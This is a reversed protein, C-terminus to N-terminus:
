EDPRKERNILTRKAEKHQNTKYGKRLVCSKDRGEKMGEYRIRVYRDVCGYNGQYTIAKNNKETYWNIMNRANGMDNTERLDM